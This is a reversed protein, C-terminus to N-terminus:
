NFFVSLGKQVCEVNLTDYVQQYYNM